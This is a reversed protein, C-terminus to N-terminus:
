DSATPSSRYDLAHFAVDRLVSAQERLRAANAEDGMLEATDALDGLREAAATAAAAQDPEPRTPEDRM